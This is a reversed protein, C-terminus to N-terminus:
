RSLQGRVAGPGYLPLTHVNVYYAGPHALIDILLGRDSVSACGSSTGTADPPVFPVVIPGPDTVPAKHIHAAVAPLTINQVSLSYCVEQLGVNVWLWATGTGDPDGPGPREAGGTMPVTFPRGGAAVSSPLAMLALLAVLAILRRM